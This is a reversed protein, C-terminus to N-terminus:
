FGALTLRNTGHRGVSMVLSINAIRLNAFVGLFGRLVYRLVIINYFQVHRGYESSNTQLVLKVQVLCM